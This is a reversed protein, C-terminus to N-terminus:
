ERAAFFPINQVSNSARILTTHKKSEEHSKLARRGMSSIDIQKKCLKCMAVSKKNPVRVVWEALNPNIQENLWEDQFTCVM